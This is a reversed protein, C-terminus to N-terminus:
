DGDADRTWRLFLVLMLLATASGFVTGPRRGVAFYGGLGGVAVAASMAVVFFRGSHALPNPSGTRDLTGKPPPGWLLDIAAASDRNAVAVFVGEFEVGERVDDPDGLEDVVVAHIGAAVLRDRAHEAEELEGFLGVSVPDVMPAGTGHVIRSAGSVGPTGVEHGERHPDTADPM